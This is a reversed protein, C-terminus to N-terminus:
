VESKRLQKMVAELVEEVGIGTTARPDYGRQYFFEALLPSIIKGPSRVPLNGVSQHLHLHLRLFGSGLAFHM